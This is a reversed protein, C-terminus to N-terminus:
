GAEALLTAMADRRATLDSLDQEVAELARQM